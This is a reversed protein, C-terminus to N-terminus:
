EMDKMMATENCDPFRPCKVCMSWLKHPLVAKDVVKFGYHKFFDSVYTLTVVHRIGLQSVEGLCAELIRSGYGKRTKDPAVALSLIEAYDEWTVHLACCAIIRDDEEIVYFDRVLEYLEGMARPLMVEQRAYINILQRILPVDEVRAKRLL